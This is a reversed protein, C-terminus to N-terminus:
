VICKVKVFSRSNDFKLKTPDVFMSSDNREKMEGYGPILTGDQIKWIVQRVSMIGESKFLYWGSLINGEIDGQFTGDNRDKEFPHFTLPGNASSGKVELQLSATDRKEIMSYCGSLSTDVSVTAPQGGSVPTIVSDTIPNAQGEKGNTNCAFFIAAM